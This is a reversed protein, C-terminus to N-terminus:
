MLLVPSDKHDEGLILLRHCRIPPRQFQDSLALVPLALNLDQHLQAHYVDVRVTLFRRNLITLL